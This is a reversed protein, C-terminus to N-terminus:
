THPLAPTLLTKSKGFLDEMLRKFRTKSEGSATFVNGEASTGVGEVSDVLLTGGAGDTVRWELVITDSVRSFAFMGTTQNNQKIVPTVYFQAGDLKDSAAIIKADYGMDGLMTQAQTSIATALDNVMKGGSFLQDGWERNWKAAKLDDTVVIAVLPRTAPPAASAPASAAPAASAPADGALAPSGAALACLLALGAAQGLNM